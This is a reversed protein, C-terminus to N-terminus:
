LKESFYSKYGEGFIETASTVIMFALPDEEKVIEEAKPSINKKMACMIVSKEKGSYAGSGQVYTVGIDLEELLRGAIKEAHDSIIYILKAEDRGYLVVDLVVSTIIVVIGAYLAKDINRFVFASAIVIVVDTLFFLAGTKLYPFKLRLLKIIIDTGGTTSGAKFVWGMSVAMLASGTLSALLPDTTVAGVPTLLNTFLSTMATCYITSLIFRLGFKWIGILLIPINILLMWTGTEIGFLRNLIIAIGTIGGPALSNPDLFMSVSVAYIFSAVTIMVYDRFMQLPTKKDLRQIELEKETKKAMIREMGCMFAAYRYYAAKILSVNVEKRLFSAAVDAHSQM